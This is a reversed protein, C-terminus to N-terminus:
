CGAGLMKSWASPGGGKRRMRCGMVFLKKARPFIELLNEANDQYLLIEELEYM